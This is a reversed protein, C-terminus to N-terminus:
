GDAAIPRVSNPDPNVPDPATRTSMVAAALAALTTCAIRFMTHGKLSEYIDTHISLITIVGASLQM